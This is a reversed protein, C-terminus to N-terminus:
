FRVQMNIKARGDLLDPAISFSKEGVEKKENRTLVADLYSVLWVGVSFVFFSNRLKHYNNFTSFRSDIKTPDTEALYDDEANNRAIHALVTGLVGVGWLSSFILGRRTQGKYMQGWGPLVMSRIAASPRPDQLVIYRVTGPQPKQENQHLAWERKVNEFFEVIKPSVFLPDLKLDANLSLAEEFQLRAQSPKNQSFYILGLIQHIQVLQDPSFMRYNKIAAVAEKEADNYNLQNYNQKIKDAIVAPSDQAFSFCPVALLPLLLFIKM